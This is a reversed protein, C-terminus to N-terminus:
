CFKKSGGFKEDPWPRIGPQSNSNYPCSPSQSDELTRDTSGSDIAIVEFRFKTQQTFISALVGALYPEGNFTLLVISIEAGGGSM